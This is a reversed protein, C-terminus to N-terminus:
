YFVGSDFCIWDRIFGSLGDTCEVRWKRSLPHRVCMALCRKNVPKIIPVLLDTFNLSMDIFFIVMSTKTPLAQSVHAVGRPLSSSNWTLKREKNKLQNPDMPHRASATSNPKPKLDLLPIWIESETCMFKTLNDLYCVFNYFRFMWTISNATNMFVHILINRMFIALFKFCASCFLFLIVCILLNATILILKM